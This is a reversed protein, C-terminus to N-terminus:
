LDHILVFHCNESKIVQLRLNMNDHAYLQYSNLNSINIKVIDIIKKGVTDTFINKTTEKITIINIIKLTKPEVELITHPVDSNEYNECINRILYGLSRVEKESTASKLKQCGLSFLTKGKVKIPAIYLSVLIEEGDSKYNFIETYLPTETQLSGKIYNLVEPSNKKTREGTIPNYQFIRPNQGIIDNHDILYVSYLNASYLIIPYYPEVNDCVIFFTGEKEGVITMHKVICDLKQFLNKKAFSHSYNIVKDRFVYGDLQGNINKMFGKCSFIHNEVINGLDKVFNYEGNSCLCKQISKSLIREFSSFITENFLTIIIENKLTTKLLEQQETILEQQFHMLRDVLAYAEDDLIGINNKISKIFIENLVYKYLANRVEDYSCLIDSEIESDLQLLLTLLKSKENNDLHFDQNEVDEDDQIKCCRKLIFPILAVCISGVTTLVTIIIENTNLM